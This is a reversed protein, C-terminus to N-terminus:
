SVPLKVAAEQRALIHTHVHTETHTALICTACGGVASGQNILRVAPLAWLQSCPSYHHQEIPDRWGATFQLLAKRCQPKAADTIIAPSSHIPVSCVYGDSCLTGRAYRSGQPLKAFLICGWHTANWPPPPSSECSGHPYMYLAHSQLLHKVGEFHFFCLLYTKPESCLAAPAFELASLTFILRCCWM